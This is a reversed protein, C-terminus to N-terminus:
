TSIRKSMKVCSMRGGTSMIHEGRELSEYGLSAYFPEATISSVLELYTLGHQAAIEELRSVLTSGVRKRAAKPLVYCARLENQEPVLVGIGVIEGDMEAVIRVEGSPNAIVREVAETSIAMPAWEEIIEPTYDNAAIGRVAEHLVHLFQRADDARM